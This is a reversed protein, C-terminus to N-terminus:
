TFQCLSFKRDSLSFVSFKFICNSHTGQNEKLAFLRFKGIHIAIKKKIKPNQYM